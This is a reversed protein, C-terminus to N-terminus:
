GQPVDCNRAGNRLAHIQPRPRPRPRPIDHQRVKANLLELLVDVHCPDSLKCWCALYDYDRLELIDNWNDSCLALESQWYERYLDVAEQRTHGDDVRFPNGWKTPRGVYKAGEPMTWGKTRKRQIRKPM